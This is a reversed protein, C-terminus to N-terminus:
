PHSEPSAPFKLHFTTGRGYRTTYSITGNHRRVIERVIALGLGNSQPKNGAPELLRIGEPMGDGTDAIDLCVWEEAAYGRVTLTGGGPMAEVANKCLNLLAQRLKDGDALIRPLDPPVEENVRINRQAYAASQLALLQRIEEALSTPRLVFDFLAGSSRLEELLLILRQIERKLIPLLDAIEDMARPNAQFCREMIEVSALMGNLPNALEHAVYRGLHRSPFSSDSTKLDRIEQM